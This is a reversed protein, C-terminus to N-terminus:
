WIRHTGWVNIATCCTLRLFIASLMSCIQFAMCGGVDGEQPSAILRPEERLDTMFFTPLRKPLFLRVQAASANDCFVITVANELPALSDKKFIKGRLPDM